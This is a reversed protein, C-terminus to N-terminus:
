LGTPSMTQSVLILGGVVRSCVIEALYSLMRANRHPLFLCGMLLRFTLRTKSLTGLSKLSLKASPPLAKLKCRSTVKKRWPQIGAVCLITLQFKNRESIRSVHLLRNNFHYLYCHLWSCLISLDISRSFGHLGSLLRLVAFCQCHSCMLFIHYKRIPSRCLELIYGHFGM